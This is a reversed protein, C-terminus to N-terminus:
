RRRRTMSSPRKSCRHFKATRCRRATRCHRAPDTKHGQHRLCLHSRRGRRAARALGPRLVRPARQSPRYRPGLAAPLLPSARLAPLRPSAAWQHRPLTCRPRPSRRRLARQPKAHAPSPPQELALNRRRCPQNTTGVPTSCTWRYIQRNGPLILVWAALKRRSRREPSPGLGSEARNKHQRAGHAARHARARGLAGAGTVSGSACIRALVGGDGTDHPSSSVCLSFKLYAPANRGVNVRAVVDAVGSCRAM